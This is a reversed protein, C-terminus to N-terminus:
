GRPDMWFAFVGRPVPSWFHDNLPDNGLTHSVTRSSEFSGLIAAMLSGNYNAKTKKEYGHFGQWPNVKLFM